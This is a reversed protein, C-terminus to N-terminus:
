NILKNIFKVIININNYDFDKNYFEKNYYKMIHLYINIKNHFDINLNNIKNIINNLINLLLTLKTNNIKNIFSNTEIIIKEIIVDSLEFQKSFNYKKLSNFIKKIKKKNMIKILKKNILLFNDIKNINEYLIYVMGKIINFLLESNLIKNDYLIQLQELVIEQKSEKIKLLIFIEKFKNKVNM